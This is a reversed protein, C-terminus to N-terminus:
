RSEVKEARGSQCDVYQTPKEGVVINQAYAHETDRTKLVIPALEGQTEGKDKILNDYNHDEKRKVKPIDLDTTM